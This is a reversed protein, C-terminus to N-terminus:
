FLADRTDDKYIENAAVLIAEEIDTTCDINFEMGAGTRLSQVWARGRVLDVGCHFLEHFRRRQPETLRM